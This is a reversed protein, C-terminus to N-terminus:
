SIALQITMDRFEAESQANEPNKKGFVRATGPPTWIPFTERSKRIKLPLGARLHREPDCFGRM